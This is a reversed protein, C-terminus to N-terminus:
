GRQVRAFRDAKTIPTIQSTLKHKQPGQVYNIQSTMFSIYYILGVCKFMYLKGMRM